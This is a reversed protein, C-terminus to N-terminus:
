KQLRASGSLLNRGRLLLYPKDRNRNTMDHTTVIPMAPAAQPRILLDSGEGAFVSRGFFSRAPM